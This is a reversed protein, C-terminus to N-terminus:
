LGNDREFDNIRLIVTDFIDAYETYVLKLQSCADRATGLAGTELLLKVSLLQTLLASVQASSKNLIKNRAGMKVIALNSLEFGLDMKRQALCEELRERESNSQPFELKNGNLVWNLNPQPSMDEIDIVAQKIKSITIIDEEELIAIEVVVNNEVIAHKRAM